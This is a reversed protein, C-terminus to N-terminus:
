KYKYKSDKRFIEKIRLKQYREFEIEEERFRIPEYGIFISYILSFKSRGLNKVYNFYKEKTAKYKFNHKYDIYIKLLSLEFRVLPTNYFTDDTM